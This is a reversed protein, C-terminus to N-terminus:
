KITGDDDYVVALVVDSGRTYINSTVLNVTIGDIEEVDTGWGGRDVNKDSAMDDGAASMIAWVTKEEPDVAMFGVLFNGIYDALQDQFDVSPTPVGDNVVESAAYRSAFQIFGCTVIEAGDDDYFVPQTATHNEARGTGTDNLSEQSSLTTPLALSRHRIGGLGGDWIKYTLHFLDSAGRTLGGLYFDFVGGTDIASDVNDWTGGSRRAYDVRDKAGMNNDEDGAYYALVTTGDEQLKLACARESDNDTVATTDDNSLTFSDSAMSFIHYFLKENDDATLIHIEDCVQDTGLGDIVPTAGSITLTAIEVFASTPDTAKQISLQDANVGDRFVMYVNGASSVYPRSRGQSQVGLFDVGSITTPFAM